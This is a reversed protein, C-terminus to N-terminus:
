PALQQVTAGTTTTTAATTTIVATSDTVVASSDTPVDTSDIVTLSVSTSIPALEDGPATKIVFVEWDSSSFNLARSVIVAGGDMALEMGIAQDAGPGTYETQSILTGDSAFRILM